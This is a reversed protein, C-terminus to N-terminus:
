GWIVSTSFLKSLNILMGLTVETLFNYFQTGVLCYLEVQAELLDRCMRTVELDWFMHFLTRSTKKCCM